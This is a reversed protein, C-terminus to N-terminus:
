LIFDVKFCEHHCECGELLKKLEKKADFFFLMAKTSLKYRITLIQGQVNWIKQQFNVTYYKHKKLVQNIYKDIKM